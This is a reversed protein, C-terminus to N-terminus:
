GPTMNRLQNLITERAEKQYLTQWGWQIAPFQHDLARGIVRFFDAEPLPSGHSIGYGVVTQFIAPVRLALPIGIGEMMRILGKADGEAMRVAAHSALDVLTQAQVLPAGAYGFPFSVMLPLSIQNM